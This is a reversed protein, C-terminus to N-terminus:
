AVAPIGLGCVATGFRIIIGEGDGPMIMGPIIIGPIGILDWVGAMGVAMGAMIGPLISGRIIISRRSGLTMGTIMFM